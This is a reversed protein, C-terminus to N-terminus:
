AEPMEREGIVGEPDASPLEGDRERAARYRGEDVEEGHLMLEVHVTGDEALTFGPGHREGRRWYRAEHVTGASWWLEWGHLAGDVFPWVEALTGDDNWWLDTGTGRHFSCRSLVTGATSWQTTTGHTRDGVSPAAFSPNGDDHYEVEWGPAGDREVVRARFPVHEDAGFWAEGLLGAADSYVVERVGDERRHVVRTADASFLAELRFRSRDSGDDPASM